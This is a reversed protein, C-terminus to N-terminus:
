GRALTLAWISHFALPELVEAAAELTAGTTVVDDIIIATKVAAPLNIKKDISFAGRM